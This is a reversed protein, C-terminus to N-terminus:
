CNRRACGALLAFSRHAGVIRLVSAADLSGVLIAAMREACPPNDSPQVLRSANMTM